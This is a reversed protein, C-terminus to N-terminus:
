VFYSFYARKWRRTSGLEGSPMLSVLLKGTDRHYVEYIGDTLADGELVISFQELGRCRPGDDLAVLRATMVEGAPDAVRFSHGLLESFQDRRTQKPNALVSVPAIATAMASGLAALVARRQLM